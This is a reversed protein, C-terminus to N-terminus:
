CVNKVTEVECFYLEVELYYLYKLVKLMSM